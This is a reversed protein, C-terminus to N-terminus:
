GVPNRSAGTDEGGGSGGGRGLWHLRLVPLAWPLDECACFHERLTAPTQTPAPCLPGRIYLCRRAWAIAQLCSSAM